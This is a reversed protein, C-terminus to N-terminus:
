LSRSASGADGSSAAAPLRIPSADYIYVDSFESLWSLKALSFMQCKHNSHLILTVMLQEIERSCALHCLCYCRWLAKRMRRGGFNSQYDNSAYKTKPVMPHWECHRRCCCDHPISSLHRLVFQVNSTDRRSTYLTLCSTSDLTSMTSRCSILERTLGWRPSPALRHMRDLLNDRIM